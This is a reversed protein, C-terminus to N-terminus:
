IWEKGTIQGILEDIDEGRFFDYKIIYHYDCDFMVEVKYPPVHEALSTRYTNSFDQYIKTFDIYGQGEDILEQRIDEKFDEYDEEHFTYEDYMKELELPSKEPNHSKFIELTRRKYEEKAFNENWPVSVYNLANWGDEFEIYSDVIEDNWLVNYEGIPFVAYVYGYSKATEVHRTTFVCSKRRVPSKIIEYVTDLATTLEESSHTPTRNKNTKVKKFQEPIGEIGRYFFTKADNLFPQCDRYLIKAIDKADGEIEVLRM